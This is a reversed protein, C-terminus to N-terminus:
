KDETDRMPDHLIQLVDEYLQDPNIIALFVEDQSKVRNNFERNSLNVWFSGEGKNQIWISIKVYGDELVWHNSPQSYLNRMEYQAITSLLKDEMEPSITSFTLDDETGITVSILSIRVDEIQEIIPKPHLYLINGIICVM